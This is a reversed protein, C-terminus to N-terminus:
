NKSVYVYAVYADQCRSVFFLCKHLQDIELLQDFEIKSGPTASRKPLGNAGRRTRQALRYDKWHEVVKDFAELFSTKLRGIPAYMALQVVKGHKNITKLPGMHQGRLQIVAPHHIRAKAKAKAKGKAMAKPAPAAPAVPVPVPVSSSSAPLSATSASSAAVIAHHSLSMSSMSGSGSSSASNASADVPVIRGRSSSSAM